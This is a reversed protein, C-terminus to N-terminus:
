IKLYWRKRHLWHAFLWGLTTWAIAYAL